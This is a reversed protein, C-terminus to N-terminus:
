IIDWPSCFDRMQGVSEGRADWFLFKYLIRDPTATRLYVVEWRTVALCESIALWVSHRMWNFNSSSPSFLFLCLLTWKSNDILSNLSNKRSISFILLMSEIILQNVLAHVIMQLGLQWRWAQLCQSQIVQWCDCCEQLWKRDWRNTHIKPVGEEDTWSKEVVIQPMKGSRVRHYRGLQWQGWRRGLDVLKIVM